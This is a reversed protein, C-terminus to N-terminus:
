VFQVNLQFLDTKSRVTNYGADCSLLILDLQPQNHTRFNNLLLNSLVDFKIQRRSKVWSVRNKLSPGRCNTLSTM